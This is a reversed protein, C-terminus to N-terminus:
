HILTDVWNPFGNAIHPMYDPQRQHETRRQPPIPATELPFPLSTPQVFVVYQVPQALLRNRIVDPKPRLDFDM